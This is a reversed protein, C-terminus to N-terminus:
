IWREGNNYKAILLNRRAVAQPTAFELKLSPNFTFKNESRNFSEIGALQRYISMMGEPSAHWLGPEIEQKGSIKKSKKHSKPHDTTAIFKGGEYFEGNAGVEGGKKARRRTYIEFSTMTFYGSDREADKSAITSVYRM